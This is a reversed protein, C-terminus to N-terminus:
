TRGHMREAIAAEIPARVIRLDEYRSPLVTAFSVRLEPRRDVLLRGHRLVQMAIAPSGTGLDVLDVERALLRSLAASLELRVAPTPSEVFLAALDVDSDARAGGRAESGFLWLAALSTERELCRVVDALQSETLM